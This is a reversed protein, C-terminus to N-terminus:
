PAPGSPFTILILNTEWVPVTPVMTITYDTVRANTYDGLTVLAIDLIAPRTMQIQVGSLKEDILQHREDYTYFKFSFTPVTQIPNRLGPITLKYELKGPVSTRRFANLIRIKYHDATTPLRLRFPHSIIPGDDFM